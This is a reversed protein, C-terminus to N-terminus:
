NWSRDPLHSFAVRPRAASRFSARFPFLRKWSNQVFHKQLAIRGRMAKLLIQSKSGAAADV